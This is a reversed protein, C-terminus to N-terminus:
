KIYALKTYEYSYKEIELFSNLHEDFFVANEEM